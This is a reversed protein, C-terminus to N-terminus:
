VKALTVTRKTAVSTSLMHPMTEFGTFSGYLDGPTGNIVQDVGDGGLYTASNTNVGGGLVSGKGGIALIDNGKGLDVYVQDAGVATPSYITGIYNTDYGGLVVKDNGDGTLIQLKQGFYYEDTSISDDGKGTQLLTNRGVTGDLLMMFTRNSNNLNSKVTLDREVTVYTMDVTSNGNLNVALDNKGANFTPDGIHSYGFDLNKDGSGGTISVSGRVSANTLAVFDFDGSGLDVNLNGPLTMVPVTHAANDISLTDSGGKLNIKFDGTVGSFTQATTQGNIKTSGDIAFIKFQGDGVQQIEIANGQNDGNIVLAHNQVAATVNGAMLSRDELPQFSLTRSKSTKHSKM